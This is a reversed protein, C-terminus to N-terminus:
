DETPWRGTEIFYKEFVPISNLVKQSITINFKLLEHKEGNIKKVIIERLEKPMNLVQELIASSWGLLSDKVPKLANPPNLENLWIEWNLLDKSYIAFKDALNKIKKLDGPAGLPGFAEEM